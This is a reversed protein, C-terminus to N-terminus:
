EYISFDFYKDGHEQIFAKRDEVDEDMFMEIVEKARKADDMTIQTLRRNEPHMATKSLMSANLGGLGKFRQVNTKGSLTKVLENKEKESYVLHLNNKNEIKYLPSELVHLHGNEIIKPALIYFIAILLSRIHMGDEDEDSFVIIKNVKLDDINFKKIGKIAKGNYEMGCNLIQFVDIIENNKIIKDLNAKLVNLSKGKLPYVCQIKSNRSNKVSNMASDGEILILEVEDKNKSRCPLFKEPRSRSDKVEQSLQKIATTRTKEAKQRARSNVLVQNVVKDAEIPNEIFYVELKDKLFETLYEKIFKNNIAFKTQNEYSTHTSYTNVIVAISDEIDAFTIKKENKNYKGQTKILKDITYTFATKVADHTVGGHKLYSSNHYAKLMPKQNSFCFAIQYKSSYEKRNEHDKGRAKSEWYQIDTFADKEVYNNMYEIIGNEYFYEFVENNAEDVVIMKIGKNVISQEEAYEKIDEIPIDIDTFVDLSSRWKIFTGTSDYDEKTEKLENVFEGDKTEIEYCYGDRRSRVYFYESSLQAAAAGLGSLGVADAYADGDEKEYKGGSHLRGFVLYYNWENEVDNFQMPVGRGKDEVSLSLDKYKTIVVTDGFGGKAEDLSNGTLELLVHKAGTIDDSGLTNAPRNRIAQLDSWSRISNNGYNSLYSM